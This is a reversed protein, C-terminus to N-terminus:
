SPSRACEEVGPPFTFYVPRNQVLQPGAGGGRPTCVRLLPRVEPTTRGALVVAAVVGSVRRFAGQEGHRQAAALLQRLAGVQLAVHKVLPLGM